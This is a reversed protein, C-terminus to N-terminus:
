PACVNAPTNRILRRFADRRTRKRAASVRGGMTTAALPGREEGDPAGELTMGAFAFMNRHFETWMDRGEASLPFTSCDLHPARAALVTRALIWYCGLIAIIASLDNVLPATRAPPADGTAAILRDLGILVPIVLSVIAIQGVEVGINFAGLAPVVAGPPLGFEKCHRLL